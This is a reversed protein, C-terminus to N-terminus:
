DDYESTMYSVFLFGLVGSMVVLAVLEPVM